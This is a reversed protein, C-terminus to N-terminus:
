QVDRLIRNLCVLKLSILLSVGNLINQSENGDSQVSRASCSSQSIDFELYSKFHNKLIKRRIRKAYNIKLNVLNMKIKGTLVITHYTIFIPTINMHSFSNAATAACM